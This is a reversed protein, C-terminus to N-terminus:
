AQGRGVLMARNGLANDMRDVLGGVMRDGDLYVGINDIKRSLANVVAILTRLDGTAETDSSVGLAANVALANDMGQTTLAAVSDIADTVPKTDEVIGEALGLTVFEGIERFVKSPSAIGLASKAAAVISSVAGKAASVAAGVAGKIGEVLGMILNKGASKLGSAFSKVASVVSTGITRAASAANGVATKIGAVINQALTTAAALANGAAGKVAAIANSVATRVNTVITSKVSNFTSVISNWLNSAAAALPGLAEGIVSIVSQILAKGADLLVPAVAKVLTVLAKPAQAAISTIMPAANQVVTAVSESLNNLSATVDQGTAMDALLNTAAAKMAGMSGTFTTKAEDAAVGTLGLDEQIVHIAEYVDGLNDINYEVGTLATADALLREMETKTGGYGLNLNDLLTYNQKAFGQYASQISSMDTGMKASNDAMDLIATNAAEMAKQTDGGYAQKLAAGFSVAQEAYSNMTIGASAAERAYAKAGESADGYITDLGGFSQQLAGGAEMASKTLAIFGAAAAVGGIKLFKGAGTLFRSAFKKGGKAGEGGLSESIGSAIGETTPIIQVYATAINGAM